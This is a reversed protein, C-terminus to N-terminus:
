FSIIRTTCMSVEVGASECDLTAPFSKASYYLDLYSIVSCSILCHAGKEVDKQDWASIGSLDSTKRGFIVEKWGIPEKLQSESSLPVPRALRKLRELEHRSLPKGSQLQQSISHLISIQANLRARDDSSSRQQNVLHISLSIIAASYVAHPLYSSAFM